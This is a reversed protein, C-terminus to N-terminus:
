RLKLRSKSMTVLSLSGITRQKGTSESPLPLSVLFVTAVSM